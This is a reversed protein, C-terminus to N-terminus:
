EPEGGAAGELRLKAGETVTSLNTTVVQDGAELGSKIYAHEADRLLVEVERIQLAGDEMVWVTDGERVHERELRIVDRLETGLIQVELFEGVMLAPPREAADAVELALPDPVTVLLRAMRTREDLAHILKFVRGERHVGEPWAARNRLRVEAGQEGETRPVTIWRLQPVPVTVVVWFSDLGVLRGLEDGPEVRSGAGVARSLVQATFPARITARDIELRAQQVAARAAEVKEEAAEVQPRRLVLDRKDAPLEEKVLEYGSRAVDQRAREIELESMAQRLDGQRQELVNRYDAPEIRVLLEGEDVFGGPAFDDGLELIAGGVQPRLVVDQSPEVTGTATIVPRHDGREATTVEVLMATELTAGGREAEPETAIALAAAAAAGALILACVMLTRTRGPARRPEPEAREIESSM